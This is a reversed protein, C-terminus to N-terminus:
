LEYDPFLYMHISVTKYGLLNGRTYFIKLETHPKVFEVTPIPFFPFLFDKQLSM